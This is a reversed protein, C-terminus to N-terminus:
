CGCRSAKVIDFDDDDRVLRNLHVIIEVLLETTPYQIFAVHANRLFEKIVAPYRSAQDIFGM